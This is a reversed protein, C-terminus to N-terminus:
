GIYDSVPYFVWCMVTDKLLFRSVENFKDVISLADKANGEMGYFATLTSVVSKTAEDINEIDDGVVNYINAVKALEQSDGFSYGLRAFDATSSVLGSITTGIEKASSGAGKLFKSYSQATEDTVKKLETMEKDVNYVNQAMEKMARISTYIVTSVSVYNAISKFAGSFQSGLSRGVKGSAIAAQKVENFEKEVANLQSTTAGGAANFKALQGRLKEIQAGFDKSAKSNKDMWAAIKNDLTSIQLTGVFTKSEASVTALSSKVKSLTNNFREYNTVLTTSDKAGYMGSQLARLSEIDSKIVSLKNHGTTGLKEYQATVKAISAEIGGNSISTNIKNVLSQSFAQGANNAANKMQSDVSAMKIGDLSIKFKHKDLSAQIQSPLGSTDLSFNKLKIASNKGISELQKPIKTTDLTAIIKASFDSMM